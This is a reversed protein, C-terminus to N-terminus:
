AASRTSPTSGTSAPRADRQPPQADYGSVNVVFFGNGNYHQATFGNITVQNAGDVRVGNQRPSRRHGALRRPRGEVPGQPQRDLKLYRKSAGLM